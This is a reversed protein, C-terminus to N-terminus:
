AGVAEPTAPGFAVLEDLEALVDLLPAPVAAPMVKRHVDPTLLAQTDAKEFERRLDLVLSKLAADQIITTMLPSMVAWAWRRKQESALRIGTQTLVPVFPGALALREALMVEREESRHPADGIVELLE